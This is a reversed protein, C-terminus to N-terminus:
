FWVPFKFVSYLLSHACLHSVTAPVDAGPCGPVLVPPVLAAWVGRVRSSTCVPREGSREAWAPADEQAAGRGSVAEGPYPCTQCKCSSLPNVPSPGPLRPCRALCCGPSAPFPCPRVAAAGASGCPSM